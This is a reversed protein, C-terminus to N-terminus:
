WCPTVETLISRDAASRYAADMVAQVYLGDALSPSFPTGNAVASLFAHMSALHGYLWGAPAKPSPFIMNPYRGVCEIRVFGREGGMPGDPATADYFSLWNPEMLSFRLAGREGYIAFSLDDNTGIQLKGVTMSGHAGDETVGFLTFSEDANTQWLEGNLGRRTPYAIQSLGGVSQMRGCLFGMLDIVHSGLDFLVGGGCIERDQKWGAPRSVDTASNHLYSAQFSLIRGIRGEEILQKARLVPALWRNNFVMGILQGPQTQLGALEKAEELSTCLPKECLIHKGKAIAKKLTEFHFRNPTCIDIIDIDPDNILEDECTSAKAFGFEEAVRLSKEASTTVVGSVTPAFGEDGYFFKLNQVAWTHTRGMSGFGLLGIHLQKPPQPNMKQGEKRHPPTQM